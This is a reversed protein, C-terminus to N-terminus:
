RVSKDYPIGEAKPARSNKSTFALVVLSVIYPMMNYVASSINMAVLWDFGQYVNGLARFFDFGAVGTEFKWESVGSTIYVIGGLGGLIGSTFIGGCTFVLQTGGQYWIDMAATIDADGNFQGAYSYKMEVDTLGLEKAAAEAGQVFGYGYRQVAPVPMGGFFGLKKYGLKLAAYGAEFGSIEEHYVSKLNYYKTVDWNSPNYDYSEGTKKTGAEILDGASVDLAVFKVEKMSDQGAVDVITGGFLYGPMIIINYGEDVTKEIQQTTVRQSITILSLAM